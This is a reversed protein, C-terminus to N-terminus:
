LPIWINDGWPLSQSTYLWIVRFGSPQTAPVKCKGDTLVVVPADNGEGTLKRFMPTFDTGGRGYRALLRAPPIGAHITEDMRIDADVQIVRLTADHDLSGAIWTVEGLFEELLHDSISASVDVAVIIRDVEGHYGPLFINLDSYRRDIKRLSKRTRADILNRIVSDYIRIRSERPSMQLYDPLTVMGPIRSFEKAMRIIERMKSRYGGDSPLDRANLSILSSRALGTAEIVRDITDRSNPKGLKQYQFGIKRCLFAYIEEVSMGETERLYLVGPINKAIGERLLIANCALESSLKWLFRDGDLGRDKHNLAIQLILKGIEYMGLDPSEVLDKGLVVGGETLYLGTADDSVTLKVQSLISGFFPFRMALRLKLAELSSCTDRIM